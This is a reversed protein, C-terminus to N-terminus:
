DDDFPTSQGEPLDVEFANLLMSVCTYYGLLVVVEVTLSEGLVDITAAYTEDGVRRSHVLEHAFAHVAREGPDTLAPVEGRALAEIVADAVGEDRAIRAHAWWEYRARWHAAAVLIGIERQAGTLEGDFRLMEGLRQVVMGLDPRHVMANFPGRLAGRTDLYGGLGAGSGRKGGIIAELVARQSEDLQDQLLASLRSM